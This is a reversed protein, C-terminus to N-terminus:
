IVFNGNRFVPVVTGDEQIGDVSMDATGFMFDEHQDSHNGGHALLEEESMNVGDKINEPYCAGLALHCAANEDYLTEFFLINSKSIPSDYPVLAVEGLYKAGDDFKLLEALTEEEKKAGFDVVAGHEFRFWFDEIVKGNYSLPKSAYVIGNVADRKPMTFVEETPMNPDFFVGKASTSGGGEWIHNRVLEVVLDTGLHNTFHLSHFHYDTLQRAHQLLEEDHKKWDEIPDNTETVRTVDFIAQELRNFAEEENLEPFVVKAWEVSPLGIISWQLENNMLANTQKKVAKSQAAMHAIVKGMDVGNLGGPADSVVTLYAYNQETRTEAQIRIWEAVDGLTEKSQYTYHLKTLTNDKWDVEVKSAGAKYADEVLMRVFEVDRTTARILLPQGKQVNVGHEIALKSLKEYM